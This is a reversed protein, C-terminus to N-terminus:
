GSNLGYKQAYAHLELRNAVGLKGYISTLHNRLTHESIHLKEAVTRATAGGSALCVFVIERERQTLQSLRQQHPDEQNVQGGRAIVDFIRGTAERSLWLEGEAVRRIARLVTPGDAEMPLIGRVGKMVAMDHQDNATESTLLLLQAESSARFREISEMAALDGQWPDMLIVDVRQGDLWELARSFEAFAAALTVREESSAQLWSVLGHRVVPHPHVVLVRLVSCGGKSEM